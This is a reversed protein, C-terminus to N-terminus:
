LCQSIQQLDIYLTKHHTINEETVDFLALMLINGYVKNLKNCIEKNNFELLIKKLTTQTSSKKYIISHEYLCKAFECFETISIIEPNNFHEQVTNKILDEVTKIELKDLFHKFPILKKMTVIPKVNRVNSLMNIVDFFADGKVHIYDYFLNHFIIKLKCHNFKQFYLYNLCELFKVTHTFNKCIVPLRKINEKLICYLFNKGIAYAEYEEVTVKFHIYNKFFSVIKINDSSLKWVTSANNCLVEWEQSDEVSVEHYQVNGNYFLRLAGYIAWTNYKKIFSNFKEMLLFAM